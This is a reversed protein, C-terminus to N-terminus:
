AGFPSAKCEPGHRKLSSSQRLPVCSQAGVICQWVTGHVIEPLISRIMPHRVQYMRDILTRISHDDRKFVCAEITSPMDRQDPQALHMSDVPLTWCLIGLAWLSQLLTDTSKTIRCRISAQCAANGFHLWFPLHDLGHDYTKLVRRFSSAIVAHVWPPSGHLVHREVVSLVVRTYSVDEKRRGLGLARAVAERDMWPRVISAWTPAELAARMCALLRCAESLSDMFGNENESVDELSPVQGDQWARVLAAHCLETDVCPDM